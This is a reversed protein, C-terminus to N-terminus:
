ESCVLFAPECRAFALEERDKRVATTWFRIIVRRDDGAGSGGGVASGEGGDGGGAGGGGSGGGGGGGGTGDAEAGGEEAASSLRRPSKVNTRFAGATFCREGNVIVPRAGKLVGRGTLWTALAASSLGAPAEPGDGGGGGRGMGEDGGGGGEDSDESSSSSSSEATSKSPAKGRAKKKAPAKGRPKRKVQPPKAIGGTLRGKEDVEIRQADAASLSVEVQEWIGCEACTGKACAYGSAPDDRDRECMMAKEFAEQSRFPNEEKCGGRACWDCCAGEAQDEAMSEGGCGCNEHLKAHSKAMDGLARKQKNHHTCECKRDTPQVVYWPRLGVFTTLSCVKAIDPYVSGLIEYVAENSKFQHRAAQNVECASMFEDCACSPAADGGSNVARAVDVARPLDCVNCACLVKGKFPGCDCAESPAGCNDCMEFADPKPSNCGCSSNPCGCEHAVTAEDGVLGCDLCIPKLSQVWTCRCPSGGTERRGCITCYIHHGGRQKSHKSLVESTYSSHETEELWLAIIKPVLGSHEEEFADCRRPSHPSSLHSHASSSDPTHPAQPLVFSHPRWLISRKRDFNFWQAPTSAAMDAKAAAGQRLGTDSSLELVKLMSSFEWDPADSGPACVAM